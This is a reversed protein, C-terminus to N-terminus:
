SEEAVTAWGVLFTKQRAKPLSTGYTVRLVGHKDRQLEWAPGRVGYELLSKYANNLAEVISVGDPEERAHLIVTPMQESAVTLMRPM